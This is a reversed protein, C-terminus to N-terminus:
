WVSCIVEGGVGSKKAGSGILVGKSTSVIVIGLGGMVQPIKDKEAYVRLGPKSIKKLGGIASSGDKNYKLHIKIVGQIGEDKRIEFSRIYGEQELIGAIDGKFKSFPIIVIDMNTTYANKIRALMDAVPDSMYSM